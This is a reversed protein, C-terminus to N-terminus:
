ILILSSVKVKERLSVSVMSEPRSQQVFLEIEQKLCDYKPDTSGLLDLKYLLTNFKDCSRELADMKKQLAIEENWIDKTVADLQKSMGALSKALQDREANMRDVDAPSLEQADVTASLAEREMSLKKVNEESIEFEQVLSKVTESLKSKKSEIHSIYTKFKEKDSEL